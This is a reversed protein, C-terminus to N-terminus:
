VETISSTAARGGGGGGRLVELCDTRELKVGTEATDLSGGKLIDCLACSLMGSCCSRPLRGDCSENVTFPLGTNLLDLM